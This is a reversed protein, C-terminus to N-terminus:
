APGPVFNAGLRHMAFSSIVKVILSVLERQSAAAGIEDLFEANCTSLNKGLDPQNM